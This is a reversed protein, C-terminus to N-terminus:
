EDEIQEDAVLRETSRMRDAESNCHSLRKWGKDKRRKHIMKSPRKRITQPHTTEGVWEEPIEVLRGRRMRYFKGDREIRRPM